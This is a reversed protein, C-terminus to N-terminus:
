DEACYRLPSWSGQAKLPPRAPSNWTDLASFKWGDLPFFFFLTRQTVVVTIHALYSFPKPRDFTLQIFFFRRSGLLLRHGSFGGQSNVLERPRSKKQKKETPRRVKEGFQIQIEKWRSAGSPSAARGVAGAAGALVALHRRQKVVDRKKAPFCLAFFFLLM